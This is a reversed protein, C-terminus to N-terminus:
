FLLVPFPSCHRYRLVNSSCLARGPLSSSMQLRPVYCSLCSSKPNMAQTPKLNLKFLSTPRSAWVPALVFCLLARRVPYHSSREGRRVPQAAKPTTADSISVNWLQGGWEAKGEHSLDHCTLHMNNM